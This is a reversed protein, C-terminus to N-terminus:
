IISIVLVINIKFWKNGYLRKVEHIKLKRYTGRKLGEINLFDFHTRTLSTVKYGLFDFMEKVQHNKGETIILEILSSKRKYDKELVKIFAPRTTYEKLKLGRKVQTIQQNTLIGNIRLVYTKPVEYEPRTLIYSLEGDNTLLLAGATNFDLRGVPYIRINKDEESFLDLVTKRNREDSVTSVVNRPKNLLYYVLEEKEIVEDNYTVNDSSSIIFSPELVVEDNVKVKGSLILQKSKRRSAVGSAALYKELKM